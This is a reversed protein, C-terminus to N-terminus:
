NIPIVCVIKFTVGADVTLNGGVTVARHRLNRLGSGIPKAEGRVGDNEILLRVLYKTVDFEVKIFTAKSHKMANTLSESLLAELVHWVNTTIDTSDGTAKFDVPIKGHNECIERMREVGMFTVASMNHVADRMKEVGLNLRKLSKDFLELAKEPNKAMIKRVTQLSIFAAVIEHGANDHIDRSIRSREAVISMQEVQTLATALENQLSELEYNKKSLDDRQELRNEREKKWFNLILGLITTSVTLILSPTTIALALYGILLAGPYFGWFMSQFIVFQLSSQAVVDQGLLFFITSILIDVCITKSIHPHNFRNRITGMIALFCLLLFGATEAHQLRISVFSEFITYRVAEAEVQQLWSIFMLSLGAINLITFTKSPTLRM